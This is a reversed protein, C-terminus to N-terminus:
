RIPVLGITLQMAKHSENKVEAMFFHQAEPYAM